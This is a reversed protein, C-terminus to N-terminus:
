QVPLPVIHATLIVVLESPKTRATQQNEPTAFESALNATIGGLAITEGDKINAIVQYKDPKAFLMFTSDKRTLQTRGAINALVTVTNDNNITPTLTFALTSRVEMAANELNSLTKAANQMEESAPRSRSIEIEGPMNNIITKAPATFVNLGAQQATTLATSFPGRYFGLPVPEPQPQIPTGPMHPSRLPSLDFGNARLENHTAALVRVELEVSRRPQDLFVVTKRLNEVGEKTGFVLLTKNEDDAVIKKVGEPLAFAGTRRPRGTTEAPRPQVPKDFDLAGSEAPRPQDSPNIWWAMLHAPINKIPIAYAKQEQLEGVPVIPQNAQSYAPSANWLAGATLTALLFPRSSIKM